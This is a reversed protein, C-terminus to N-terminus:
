AALLSEHLEHLEGNQLVLRRPASAITEPQHAIIVRTLGLVKVASTAQGEACDDTLASAPLV